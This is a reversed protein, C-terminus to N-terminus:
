KRILGKDFACWYTCRSNSRSNSCCLLSYPPVATLGVACTRAQASAGFSAFVRLATDRLYPAWLEAGFRPPGRTRRRRGAGDSASEVGGSLAGSSSSSPPPPPSAPQSHFPRFAGTPLPIRALCGVAANVQRNYRLSLCLM